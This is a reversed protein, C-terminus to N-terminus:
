GGGQQPSALARLGDFDLALNCAAVSAAYAAYEPYRAVFAALWETIDTVAGEEIMVKLPALLADPPRAIDPGVPDPDPAPEWELALVESIKGLLTDAIFPKLHVSAFDLAPPCDPPRQAPAASLLFVPVQRPQWRRLVSWGDGDAMFQDTIVLDVREDLFRRAQEGSAATLVDFGCDALLMSLLQRNDADDDIVLVTCRQRLTGHWARCAVPAPGDALACVLTVEFRSGEGPASDVRIEGGMLTVLQRAVALGMGAGDIGSSQGAAGRVFPEFIRAQERAAIGVGNDGVCLNLRVRGPGAAAAGCTLTVLGHLTYRNANSLLIDLVQRLRREDLMLTAPMRDPQHLAFRNGRARLLMATSQELAAIFDAWGTPGPVLALQGAEGRAHDLIEDIMGLLYRGSRKIAAAGERPTVRKSDRELLEAYGLMINLPTRFEHSMQALFRVRVATQRAAERLEESHQMIGALIAPTLLFFRWSYNFYQVALVDGGGLALLLRYLMPQMVPLMILVYSILLYLAPRSGDRWCRFFLWIGNLLLTLVLPYILRVAVDFDGLWCWLLALALVGLAGSQLLYPRRYRRRNGVFQRVFLAFFIMMAGAALAQLRIDFARGAPWLYLPMLGTYIIDFLIEAFLSLGFYLYVRQRWKLYALLTFFAVALLGGFNLALIIEGTHSVGVYADKQWLTLTVDLPTRSAVRLYVVSQAGAELRLSLVPSAARVPRQAAPVDIGSDLQRWHGDRDAEFLSVRQLRPHGVRLWREIAVPAPNHLELRLWLADRSFGRMLDGTAARRFVCAGAAVAAVDLQPAAVCWAVQRAIELQAVDIAEITMADTDAMGALPWCCLLMAVLWRGIRAPM